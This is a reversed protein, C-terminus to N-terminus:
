KRGSMFNALRAWDKNVEAITPEVKKQPKIGMDGLVEKLGEYALNNGMWLNSLAEAKKARDVLIVTKYFIGIESLSYQKISLWSHGNEVM